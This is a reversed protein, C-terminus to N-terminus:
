SPKFKGTIFEDVFFNALEDHPIKLMNTLNILESSARKLNIVNDSTLSYTNQM